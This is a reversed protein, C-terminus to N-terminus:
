ANYGYIGYSFTGKRHMGNLFTVREFISTPFDSQDKTMLRINDGYKVLTGGLNLDTESLDKSEIGYKKILLEINPQLNITPMITDVIDLVFEKKKNFKNIDSSGKLFENLVLTTTVFSCSNNRLQTFYKGFENANSFADIFICTDLLIFKNKTILLFDQPLVIEM